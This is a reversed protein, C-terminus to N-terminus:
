KISLRKAGYYDPMYKLATIKVKE